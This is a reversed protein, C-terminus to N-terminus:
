SMPQIGGSLAESRTDASKEGSRVEATVRLRASSFGCGQSVDRTSQAWRAKASTLSRCPV